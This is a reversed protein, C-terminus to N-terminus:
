SPGEPRTILEDCFDRGSLVCCVCCVFMWAGLPIRVWSRLLRAATSRRRLCRPWQSRCCCFEYGEAATNKRKHWKKVATSGMVQRPLVTVGECLSHQASLNTRGPVIKYHGTTFHTYKCRAFLNKCFFFFFLLL